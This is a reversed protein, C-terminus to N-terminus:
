PIDVFVIERSSQEGFTVGHEAAQRRRKAGEEAAADRAGSDRWVTGVVGEGSERDIMHRLALFGPQAKMHPVVESKFYALNDDVTAPDMSVRRVLLAAGPSPPAVVESVAQEYYEVSIRGGILRLAEERAKALTGESAERDAEADWVTLVSFVEESRDVSATAGRFGKQQRLLPGVTERMYRIGNDLNRFGTFNVIRTFM